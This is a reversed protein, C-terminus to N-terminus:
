SCKAPTPSDKAYDHMYSFIDKRDEDSLGGWEGQCPLSKWNAFAKTWQAQTMSNPSLDSKGGEPSHCSRCSKRFLYKGKRANGKEEALATGLIAASLFVAALVALVTRQM